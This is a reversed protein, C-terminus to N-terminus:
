HKLYHIISSFAKSVDSEFYDISYFAKNKSIIKTGGTLSKKSQLKKIEKIKNDIYEEMTKNDYKLFDMVRMFVNRDINEFYCLDNDLMQDELLVLLRTALIVTCYSDPREDTVSMLFNNSKKYTKSGSSCRSAFYLEHNQLKHKYTQWFDTNSESHANFISQVFFEPSTKNLLEDHGVLMSWFLESRQSQDISDQFFSIAKKLNLINITLPIPTQKKLDSSSYALFFIADLDEAIEQKILYNSTIQGLGFEELVAVTKPTTKLKLGSQRVFGDVFLKKLAEIIVPLGINLDRKIDKEDSGGTLYLYTLLESNLKKDMISERYKQLIEGTNM